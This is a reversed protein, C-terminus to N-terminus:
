ANRRDDPAVLCSMGVRDLRGALRGGLGAPELTGDCETVGSVLRSRADLEANSDTRVACAAPDTDFAAIVISRAIGRTRQQAGQAFSKGSRIAPV